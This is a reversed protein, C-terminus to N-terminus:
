AAKKMSGEIPEFPKVQARRMRVCSYPLLALSAENRRKNIARVLGLVQRRIPAYPEFPLTYLAAQLRGVSCTLAGSVFHAKLMAETDRDIRVRAGLTGNDKTRVSVAYGAFKLPRRRADKIREEHNFKGREGKTCLIVAFTEFRLYQFVARGERKRVQRTWASVHIDYKRVLKHDIGHARARKKAPLRTTAYFVYGATFYRVLQQIFGELSTAESQYPEGSM